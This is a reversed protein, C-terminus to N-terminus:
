KLKFTKAQRIIAEHDFNNIEAILDNTYYTNVEMKKKIIGTTLLYNQYKVMYDRPIDGFRNTGVANRSQLFNRVAVVKTTKKLAAPTIGGRPATQPYVKWHIRVTAETNTLQFLQAKALGRALGILMKRRKTLNENSTVLSGVVLFKARPDQIVKSFKLGGAEMGAYAADWLSLAHVQKTKLAGAARGGVGVEIIDVDKGAKMGVTAILARAYHNGLSAFSSVGISKGRLDALSNLGGGKPFALGYIDGRISTYYFRAKAGKQIGKIAGAPNGFAVDATGALVFQMAAAAGRTTIVEVELGEKKWYGLYKPLSSGVAFSPSLRPLAHVLVVKELAQASGPALLLSLLLALAFQTTRKLANM